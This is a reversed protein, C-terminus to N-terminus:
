APHLRDLLRYQFLTILCAVREGGRRVSDREFPNRGAQGENLHQWRAPSWKYNSLGTLDIVREVDSAIGYKGYNKRLMKSWAEILLTVAPISLSIPILMGPLLPPRM